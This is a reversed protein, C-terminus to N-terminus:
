NLSALNGMATSLQHRLNVSRPHIALLRQLVLIVNSWAQRQVYAGLLNYLMRTLTMHVSAPEFHEETLLPSGGVVAQVLHRCGQRDLVRGEAFPDIFTDRGCDQWRVIYHGPLGVGVLPWGLKQAIDLWIVSLTIPIGTKLELVRNLLSNRPDYYNCANGTFGEEDVLVSRLAEIREQPTGAAHRGARRALTDLFALWRAPKLDPCHDTAFLLAAEALRIESEERRVLQDFPHASCPM